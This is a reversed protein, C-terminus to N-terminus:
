ISQPSKEDLLLGIRKQLKQMQPYYHLAMKYAKIALETRDTAEMTLGLEFYAIYNRPELKLAHSLDFMALKFDSMQIHVWARRVWAEAYTPNLAIITDLYDLALGYHDSNIGNEAWQMLLDITESGSQLWLRQVQKSLKQAEQANACHKLEKLLRAIEAEKRQETTQTQSLNEPTQDDFLTATSPLSSTSPHLDPILDDLSLFSQPPPLESPLSPPEKGYCPSLLVLSSFCLFFYRWQFPTRKSVRYKFPNSVSKAVCYKVRHDKVFSVQRSFYGRLFSFARM